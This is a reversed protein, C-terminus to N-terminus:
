HFIRGGNIVLLQGTIMRAQDTALFAVGNAIDEPECMEGMPVGALWNQIQEPPRSLPGRTRTFGPCVANVNVKFPALERALARTFGIVGGKAGSYDVMNAEGLLAADSAINVIKGSKRERMEPVVLRSCMLTVMLTVNVVADWTEPESCWFESIKGRAPMGVNNVLVDVPGLDARLKAFAEKTQVRDTLDLALPLVKRGMAKIAAAVEQLPGAELDLVALDAGEQALRLASAKGIGNASGTVVAVKGRLYESM